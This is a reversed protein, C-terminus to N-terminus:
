TNQNLNLILQYFLFLIFFCDINITPAPGTPNDPAHNKDNIGFKYTLITYFYYILLRSTSEFANLILGRVISNKLFVGM